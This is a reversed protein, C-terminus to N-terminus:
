RLRYRRTSTDQMVMGERILGTLLRHTTSHNLGGYSARESLRWGSHPRTSIARVLAFM